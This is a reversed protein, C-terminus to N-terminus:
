FSKLSAQFTVLIKMNIINTQQKVVVDVGAGRLPALGDSSLGTQETIILCLKIHGTSYALYNQTTSIKM